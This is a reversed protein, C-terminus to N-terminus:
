QFSGEENESTEENVEYVKVDKRQNPKAPPKGGLRKTRTPCENGIHGFGECEYCKVGKKQGQGKGQGKGRPQSSNQPKSVDKSDKVFKGWRTPQHFKVFNVDDVENVAEARLDARKFYAEAEM